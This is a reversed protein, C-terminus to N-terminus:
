EYHNLLYQNEQMKGPNPEQTEFYEIKEKYLEILEEAYKISENCEQIKELYKSLM